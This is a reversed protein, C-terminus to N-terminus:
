PGPAHGPFSTVLSAYKGNAMSRYLFVRDRPEQSGGATDNQAMEGM